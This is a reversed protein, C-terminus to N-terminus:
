LIYHKPNLSSRAKIKGSLGYDSNRLDPLVAGKIRDPRKKWLMYLKERSVFNLGDQGNLKLHRGNIIPKM